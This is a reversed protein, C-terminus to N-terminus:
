RELTGTSIPAAPREGFAVQWWSISFGQQQYEHALRCARFLGFAPLSLFCLFLCVVVFPLYLDRRM